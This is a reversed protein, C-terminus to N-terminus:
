VDTADSTTANPPESAAAAAKQAKLAARRRSAYVRAYELERPSSKPNSKRYSAGPATAIAALEAQANIVKANEGAAQKALANQIQMDLAAIMAAVQEDSLKSIISESREFQLEKPVLHVLCKLFTAPNEQGARRLITKGNELVEAHLAALFDENLRRRTFYLNGTKDAEHIQFILFLPAGERRNQGII